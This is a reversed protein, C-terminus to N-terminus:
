RVPQPLRADVSRLYRQLDALLEDSVRPLSRALDNQEGPDKALDFLETRRDEYYYILKRNGKRISSQPTSYPKATHEPIYYPFHWYLSERSLRSSRGELLSLLSTGDLPSRNAQVGALETVTPFFDWGGVPVDCISGPTVRGPWRVMMPVRVGGEYLNWKSGRLPANTTIEPNAGNDSTFLVLTNERLGLRDVGGLLEGVYHDFTEVFAGYMARTKLVDAPTKGELRKRYKEFLWKCRTHVPTHVYYHSALLFFPRQRNERLFEIAGSTLSDEPYKGDACGTFDRENYNYPHSGREERAFMFGQREPGFEPSYGLYREHHANLHWKGALGTVYGVGRLAEAITVEELPLNLTFPPHRLPTVTTPKSDMYKTVFEFHLRAPSRGTLLAARAPSCIPAASYATFRM